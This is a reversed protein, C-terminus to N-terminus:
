RERAAPPFLESLSSIVDILRSVYYKSDSINYRLLVFCSQVNVGFMVRMVKSCTSMGCAGHRCTLRHNYQAAPILKILAKRFFLSQMKVELYFLFRSLVPSHQNIKITSSQQLKTPLSIFTQKTLLMHPPTFCVQLRCGSPKKFGLLM